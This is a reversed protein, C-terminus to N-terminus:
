VEGKVISLKRKASKTLSGVAPEGVTVKNRSTSGRFTWTQGVEECGLRNGFM